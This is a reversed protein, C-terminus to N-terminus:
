DSKASNVQEAEQFSTVLRCKPLLKQLRAVGEPTVRTGRLDISRLQQLGSLHMLGTDTIETEFLFLYSIKPLSELVPRMVALDDDALKANHFEVGTAGDVGFGFIAAGDGSYRVFGGFRTIPETIRKAERVNRVAQTVNVVIWIAFLFLALRRAKMVWSWRKQALTDTYQITANHNM